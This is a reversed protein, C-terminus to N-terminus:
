PSLRSSLASGTGAARGLQARRSCAARVAVRRAEGKGRRQRRGQGIGCNGAFAQGQLSCAGGSAEGLWVRQVSGAGGREQAPPRRKPAAAAPSARRCGSRGPRGTPGGPCSGPSGRRRFQQSGMPLHIKSTVAASDWVFQHIECGHGPGPLQPLWAAVSWEVHSVQEGRQSAETRWSAALTPAASCSARYWSVRRRRAGQFSLTLRAGGAAGARWGRAAHRGKTWVARWAARRSLGGQAASGPPSGPHASWSGRSKNHASWRGSSSCLRHPWASERCSM